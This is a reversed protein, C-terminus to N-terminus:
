MNPDYASITADPKHNPKNCRCFRLISSSLPVQNKTISTLDLYPHHATARTLTMLFESGPTQGLAGEIGNFNGGGVYQMQYGGQVVMNSTANWAFVVAPGFNNLDRPYPRLGSNPSNPGVFIL